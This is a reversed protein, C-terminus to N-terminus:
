SARPEAEVSQEAWDYYGDEDGDSGHPSAATVVCGLANAGLLGALEVLDSRATGAAAVVLTAAAARGLSAGEAVRSLPPADVLVIEFHGELVRLLPAPDGSYRFANTSAAGAPLVFLRREIGAESPAPQLARTGIALDIPVLCDELSTVGAALDIVGPTRFLRFFRHLKPRRIDLDVLVVRRGSRALEVGLNAATTSKGQAPRPGTVLVSRADDRLSAALDAALRRFRQTQVSSPLALAVLKEAEELDAPPAPLSAMLPLGLLDAIEAASSPSRRLVAAYALGGVFAAGGAVGLGVAVGVSDQAFGAVIAGAAVAASVVVVAATHWGRGAPRSELAPDQASMMRGPEM